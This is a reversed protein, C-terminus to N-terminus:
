RWTLFRRHRQDSRLQLQLRSLKVRHRNRLKFLHLAHIRVVNM